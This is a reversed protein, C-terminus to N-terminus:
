VNFLHGEAGLSSRKDPTSTFHPSPLAQWSPFAAALAQSQGPAGVPDMWLGTLPKPM